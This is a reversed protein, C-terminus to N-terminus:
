LIICCPNKEELIQIHNQRIIFNPQVGSESIDDHLHVIEDDPHDEILKEHKHKESM